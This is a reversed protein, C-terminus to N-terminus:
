LNATDRRCSRRADTGSGSRQRFSRRAYLGRAEAEGQQICDGGREAHHPARHDAADGSDQMLAPRAMAVEHILLDAGTGYKIVNENYRTDGSIVVSHGKYDIRYGVAPKIADGHNVEFATVKVGSQEYVVGGKDFEEVKM